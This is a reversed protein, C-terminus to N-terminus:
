ETEVNIITNILHVLLVLALLLSGLALAFVFYFIPVPLVGTIRHADWLHLAHVSLGWAMFIFLSMGFLYIIIDLIRQAKPSFRSTVLDISIHGGRTTCYVITFSVVVALMVKVMEFGWSLPSNFIRRSIVDAVLLLVMALIVAVALSNLIRIVRYLPKKFHNDIRERFLM